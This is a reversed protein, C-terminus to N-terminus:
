RNVGIYRDDNLNDTRRMHRYQVYITVLICVGSSNITEVSHVNVFICPDLGTVIPFLNQDSYAFLGARRLFQSVHVLVIETVYTIDERIEIVVPKCFADCGIAVFPPEPM